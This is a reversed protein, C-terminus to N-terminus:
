CQRLIRTKLGYPIAGDIDSIPMFYTKGNREYTFSGDDAVFTITGTHKSSSIEDGVEVPLTETEMVTKTEITYPSGSLDLEILDVNSSKIGSTDVLSGLYYYKSSGKVYKNKLDVIITRVVSPRSDQINLILVDRNVNICKVKTSIGKIAITHETGISFFTKVEKTVAVQKETHFARKMKYKESRQKSAVMIALNLNIDFLNDFIYLFPAM